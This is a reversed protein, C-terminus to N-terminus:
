AAGRQHHVELRAARSRRHAQRDVQAAQELAVRLVQHQQLDFGAGPHARGQERGVACV